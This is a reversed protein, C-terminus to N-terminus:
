VASVISPSSRRRRASPRLSITVVRSGPSQISSCISSMELFARGARVPQGRELELPRNDPRYVGVVSGERVDAARPVSSGSCPTPIRRRRRMRRSRPCPRPRPRPRRSRRWPLVRLRLRWSWPRRRLRLGRLRWWWVVGGGGLGRVGVGRVRGGNAGCGLVSRSGCSPRRWAGRPPPRWRSWTGMPCPLRRRRWGLGLWWWGSWRWWPWLGRWTGGACASGCGV